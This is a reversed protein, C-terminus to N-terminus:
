GGAIGTQGGGAPAGKGIGRLMEAIKDRNQFGAVAILGLLATM